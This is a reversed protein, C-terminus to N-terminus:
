WSPSTVMVLKAINSWAGSILVGDILEDAISTSCVHLLHTPRLVSLFADALTTASLEISSSVAVTCLINSPSLGASLASVESALFARLM